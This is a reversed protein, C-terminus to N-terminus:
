FHRGASPLKKPAERRRNALFEQLDKELVRKCSGFEHCVLEGSAILSYVKSLSIQLLEAVEKAKYFM